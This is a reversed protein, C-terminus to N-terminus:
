HRGTVARSVDGILDHCRVSTGHNRLQSQVFKRVYGMVLELEVGQAVARVEALVAVPVHAAHERVANDLYERVATGFSSSTCPM